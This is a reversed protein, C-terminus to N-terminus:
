RPSTQKTFELSRNAMAVRACPNYAHAVTGLKKKKIHIGPISSLDEHATLAKGNGPVIKGSM